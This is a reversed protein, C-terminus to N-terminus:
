RDLGIWNPETGDFRVGAPDLTALTEPTGKVPLGYGQDGFAAGLALEVPRRFMDDAAQVAESIMTDRERALEAPDFRPAEVVERLTRLAQDRHAALVSAGMGYWDSAVSTGLSGGLAEFADALGALTSRVPAGHRPGSRWPASGPPPRPKWRRGAGIGASPSWHSM